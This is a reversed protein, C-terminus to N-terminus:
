STIADNCRQMMEHCGRRGAIIAVVQLPQLSRCRDAVIQLARLSRCRDAICAVIQLAHLSRCRGAIIAVVQLSTCRHAGLFPDAQFLWIGQMEDHLNQVCEATDYPPDLV